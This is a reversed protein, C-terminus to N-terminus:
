GALPRDALRNCFPYPRNQPNQLYHTRRARLTRQLLRIQYLNHDSGAISVHAILEVHRHAFKGQGVCILGLAVMGSELRCHPFALDGNILFGLDPEGVSKVTAPQPKMGLRTGSPPMVAGTTVIGAPSTLFQPLGRIIDGV